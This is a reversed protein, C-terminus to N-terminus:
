KKVRRMEFQATTFTTSSNSSNFSLISFNERQQLSQQAGPPLILINFIHRCHWHWHHLIPKVAGREEGGPPFVACKNIQDQFLLTTRGTDASWCAKNWGKSFLFLFVVCTSDLRANPILPLSLHCKCNRSVPVSSCAQRVTIWSCSCM